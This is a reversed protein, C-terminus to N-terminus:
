ITTAITEARVLEGNLFRTIDAALEAARATVSAPNKRLCKLIVKEIEGSLERQLSEIGRAARCSYIPFRTAESAGTPLLNDERTVGTSPRMPEEECIVRAIEHPARSKFRYPRHGTLLEYLVRRPQLYGLSVHRFVRVQEPSAYEPTMLRMATEDPRDDFDSKRELFKLSGFDLLKATGDTQGAINSPKIIAIFSRNKHAYEVSRLDRLVIRPARPDDTKKTASDIFRNARSTNWSSIRCIEETTGGGLLRAINPHNLAALVQREQRFRNLIFDTEMGRKILKVAVQRRFEGDARTRWIFPAWAAAGSSATLRYAGIISGLLPDTDDAAGAVFDARKKL